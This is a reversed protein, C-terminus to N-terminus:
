TIVGGVPGAPYELQKGLYYPNLMEIAVLHAPGLRSTLAQSSRGLADELDHGIARLDKETAGNHALGAKLALEIAQGGMDHPVPSDWGEGGKASLQRAATLFRKSQQLLRIHLPM